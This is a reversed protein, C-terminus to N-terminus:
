LKYGKRKLDKELTLSKANTRNLSNINYNNRRKKLLEYALIFSENRRKRENSVQNDLERARMIADNERYTEYYSSFFSHIQKLYEYENFYPIVERYLSKDNNPTNLISILHSIEHICVMEDLLTEREPVICTVSDYIDTVGTVRKKTYFKEEKIHDFIVGDDTVSSLVYNYLYNYYRDENAPSYFNEMNLENLRKDKLNRININLKEM